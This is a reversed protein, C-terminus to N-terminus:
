CFWHFLQKRMQEGSSLILDLEQSTNQKSYQIISLTWVDLVVVKLFTVSWQHFFPVQQYTKILSNIVDEGWTIRPRGGPRKGHPNKIFSTNLIEQDEYLSCIRDLEHNKM